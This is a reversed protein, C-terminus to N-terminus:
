RGDRAWLVGGLLATGILAAVWLIQLEHPLVRADVFWAPVGMATAALLCGTSRNMEVGKGNYDPKLACRSSGCRRRWSLSSM